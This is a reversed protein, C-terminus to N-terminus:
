ATRCWLDPRVPRAPCCPGGPIRPWWRMTGHSARSCPRGRSPGPEVVAQEAEAGAFARVAEMTRWRTLVTFAIGAETPRRTLTAGPFGAIGRLHPVVSTRFHEPDAEPAAPRARARWDRLIM